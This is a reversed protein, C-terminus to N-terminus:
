TVLLREIFSDEVKGQPLWNNVKEEIEKKLRRKGDRSLLEEREIGILAKSVVDRVRVLHKKIFNRTEKSDCLLVIDMEAINSFGRVRKTVNTELKVTFSGLKILSYKYRAAKAEKDFLEALNEAQEHSALSSPDIHQKEMFFLTGAVLVYIGAAFSILFALSMIRTAFDGKILGTFIIVLANVVSKSFEEVRVVWSVGSRVKHWSPRRRKKPKKEEGEAGSGGSESDNLKAIEAQLSEINKKEKATMVKPSLSMASAAEAKEEKKEQGETQKDSSSPKEEEAM